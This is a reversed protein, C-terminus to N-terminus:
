GAMGEGARVGGISSHASSWMSYCFVPVFM